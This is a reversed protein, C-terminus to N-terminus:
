RETRRLWWANVRTPVKNPGLPGQETGPNTPWCSPLLRTPVSTWWMSCLRPWPQPMEQVVANVATAKASFAAVLEERTM